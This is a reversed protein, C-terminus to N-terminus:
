VEQICLDFWIRLDEDSIDEDASDEDASEEDSSDNAATVRLCNENLRKNLVLACMEEKM